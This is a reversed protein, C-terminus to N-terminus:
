PIAHRRRTAASGRELADLVERLVPTQGGNRCFYEAFLAAHYHNAGGMEIRAWRAVRAPAWDGAVRGTAYLRREATACRIGEYTVNNAGGPSRIVATFRVVGDPGVSLSRRDIFFHNTSAASVEFPLLDAEVPAAPLVVPAESWARDGDDDAALVPLPLLAVCLSWRALARVPRREVRRVPM